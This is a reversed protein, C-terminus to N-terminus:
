LGFIESCITPDANHEKCLRELEEADCWADEPIDCGQLADCHIGTTIFASDIEWTCAGQIDHELSDGVAIIESKDLHGFFKEKALNYVIPSPKGLLHIREAPCGLESYEVALSGPMPLLKDGKHAVIDPNAVLMPLGRGACQRLLETIEEGGVRRLSGDEQAVTDFWHVLVFDAEAPDATVDIELAELDIGNTKDHEKWLLHLCRRRRKGGPGDGLEGVDLDSWLPHDAPLLAEDSAGPPLALVRQAVDGSTAVGRFWDRRFGMKELRAFTHPALRASNTLIVLDCGQEEALVRVLDKAHEHPFEGDHLVGFQDLLWGKYARSSVLSSLASTSSSSGSFDFRLM